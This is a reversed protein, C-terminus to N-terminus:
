LGEPSTLAKRLSQLEAQLAGYRTRTAADALGTAALRDVEERIRLDRMQVLAGEFERRAEDTALEALLGRDAVAEGELAAALEPEDPRLWEVLQGFTAGDPLAALRAIWDVVAQPVFETPWPERALAPHLSLLLRARRPLDPLAAPM